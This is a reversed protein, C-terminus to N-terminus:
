LFYAVNLSFGRPTQMHCVFSSRQPSMCTKNKSKYVKIAKFFIKCLLIVFQLHWTSLSTDYSVGPSHCHVLSLSPIPLSKGVKIIKKIQDQLRLADFGLELAYNGNHVKWLCGQWWTYCVTSLFRSGKKAYFVHVEKNPSQLELQVNSHQIFPM